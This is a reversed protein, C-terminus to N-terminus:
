ILGVLPTIVVGQFNSHPQMGPTQHFHIHTSYNHKYTKAGKYQFEHLGFKKVRVFFEEIISSSKVDKPAWYPPLKKPFCLKIKPSVSQLKEKKSSLALCVDTFVTYALSEKPLALLCLSCKLHCVWPHLTVWHNKLCLKCVYVICTYM